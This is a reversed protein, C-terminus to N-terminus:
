PIDAADAKFKGLSDFNNTSIIELESGSSLTSLIGLVAHKFILMPSGTAMGIFKEDWHNRIKSYSVLRSAQMQSSTAVTTFILDGRKTM